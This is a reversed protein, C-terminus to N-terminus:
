NVPHNQRYLEAQAIVSNIGSIRTLGNYTISNNAFFNYVDDKTLQPATKKTKEEIGIRQISVPVVVNLQDIYVQLNITAPTIQYQIDIKYGNYIYSM